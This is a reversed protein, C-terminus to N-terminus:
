QIYDKINTFKVHGDSFLINTMQGNKLLLTKDYAIPTGPDMLSKEKGFYEINDLYWPLNDIYGDLERLIDPCTDGNDNGYMMISVGLMRLKNASDELINAINGSYYNFVKASKPAGVDYITVPGEHPYEFIASDQGIVNGNKDLVKSNRLVPLDTKEDVVVESLRSNRLVTYIVINRGKLRSKYSSIATVPQIKAFYDLQEQWLFPVEVIRGSSPNISISNTKPDYVYELGLENDETKAEYNEFVIKDDAYKRIHIQLDYNIWEEIWIQEEPPIKIHIWDVRKMAETARALAVSAPDISGGSHHIGIIVGIIIVAAAAIKTIRSKMITRWKSINITKVVKKNGHASHVVFESASRERLKELFQKDPENTGRDVSSMISSIRKDTKKDNM